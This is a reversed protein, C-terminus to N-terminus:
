AQASLLLARRRLNESLGDLLKEDSTVFVADSQEALALYVADYISIKERSSIEFTKMWSEGDMEITIEMDGLSDIATALDSVSLKFTPHYRLANAVEFIILQPSLIDTKGTEYDM